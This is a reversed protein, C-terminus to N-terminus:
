EVLGGDDESASSIDIAEGSNANEADADFVTELNKRFKPKAARPDSPAQGAKEEADKLKDAATKVKKVPTPLADFPGPLYFNASHGRKGKPTSTRPRPTDPAKGAAASATFYDPYSTPIKRAPPQISARQSIVFALDEAPLNALYCLLDCHCPEPQCWCGLVKGKLEQVTNYLYPKSWFYDHFKQLHEGNKHFLKSYPNRWKSDEYIKGFARGCYIDFPIKKGEEDFHKLNIVSM